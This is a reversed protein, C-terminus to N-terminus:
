TRAKVLLESSCGVATAHLNQEVGVSWGWKGPKQLPMVDHPCIFQSPLCQLVARQQVCGFLGPEVKQEGAILVDSMLLIKRVTFQSM